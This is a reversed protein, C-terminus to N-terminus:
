QSKMLGLQLMAKEEILADIAHEKELITARVEDAKQAELIMANHALAVKKEAEVKQLMAQAYAEKKTLIDTELEIIEGRLTSVQRDIEVLKSNNGAMVTYLCAGVLWTGMFLLLGTLKTKMSMKPLRLSFKKKAGNLPLQGQTNTNEM